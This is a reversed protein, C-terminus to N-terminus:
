VGAEGDEPQGEEDERIGGEELGNAGLKVGDDGSDGAAGWAIRWGVAEIDGGDNSELDEILADIDEDEEEEEVVKAKTSVPDAPAVSRDKEDFRGSEIPTSLAPATAPNHTTHDAM